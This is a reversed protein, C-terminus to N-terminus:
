RVRPTLAATRNRDRAQNKNSPRDPFSVRFFFGPKKLLVKALKLVFRTQKPNNHIRGLFCIRALIMDHQNGM